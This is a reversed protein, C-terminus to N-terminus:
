ELMKEDKFCWGWTEGPELSRMVPHGTEQFHKTAHKGDSDDCCGVHGCTMCIRLHIWRHGERLCNECGPTSPFVRNIQDAHTCGNMTSPHLEIVQQTDIGDGDLLTSTGLAAAPKQSLLQATGQRVACIMDEVNDHPVKFIDLTEKLLQAIGEFEESVVETAGAKTLEEIEAMYRTRILIEVDPNMGRAVSAIHHAVAPEDDPIVLLKARELGALGLTRARTSDGRMVQFGLEEAENAGSPSLTTILFPLKSRALIQTLPRAAQGYGAVVIHNNLDTPEIEELAKAMAEAESKAQKQEIKKSLKMGFQMLFPTLVMLIVTGAIFTQSGMGEIGAPFLGVDRGARELVFSFEGVQSLMLAAASAVPLSYGLVKASIGTTIIKLILVAAVAGLVLPFNQWLFQLDLLMGVSIFFTASFIMRLPLIESFAHESFKSESVLLGALFAGLSVSVGALSTLYATGFCIASVSLLFLEPSCTRAVMELLPPMLRRAFILVVAIIGGATGLAIAIDSMSSSQGSLIPVLLVMLVIALDQFILFGLGIQGPQTNTEGRDGLLKLVIATSSLAVLFGTFVGIKWDVGFAMLGGTVALTTFGVQLGGGVFILKKIQALKELSFEIGITFLLLIVGIEATADILTRDHVLGLANPGIVVGAVLFGVIPVLGIRFCLYGIAAGVVIM